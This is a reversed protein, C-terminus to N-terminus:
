RLASPARARRCRCAPELDHVQELHLALEVLGDALVLRQDAGRRAVRVEDKPQGLRQDLAAFARAGHGLQRPEFRARAVVFLREGREDVEVLADALAIAAQGQELPQRLAAGAVRLVEDLEASAVPLGAVLLLGERGPLPHAHHDGSRACASSM